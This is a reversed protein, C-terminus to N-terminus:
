TELMRHAEGMERQMWVMRESVSWLEEERLEEEEEEEEEEEWLEEEQLRCRAIM